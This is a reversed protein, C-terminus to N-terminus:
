GDAYLSEERTHKSRAPFTTAHANFKGSDFYQHQFVSLQCVKMGSLSDNSVLDPHFLYGLTVPVPAHTQLKGQAFKSHTLFRISTM